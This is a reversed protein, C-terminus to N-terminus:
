LLWHPLSGHPEKGPPCCTLPILRFGLAAPGSCRSLSLPDPMACSFAGPGPAAPSGRSSFPRQVLYLLIRHRVFCGTNPMRGEGLEVALWPRIAHLLMRVEKLPGLVPGSSVGLRRLSRGLVMRGRLLGIRGLRAPRRRVAAVLRRSGMCTCYPSPFTTM